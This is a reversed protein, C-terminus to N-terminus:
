DQIHMFSAHIKLLTNQFEIVKLLCSSQMVPRYNSSATFNGKIDKVTPNIEGTLLDSPFIFHNYCSNVFCVVNELFEDSARKLFSSHFGDHGIGNNLKSILKRLTEVSMKPYFKRKQLWERKINEMLIKEDTININNSPLFKETFINLIDRNKIKGDIIGVKKSRQKKMKVDRWFRSMDKNKYKEEISKDKEQSSNSVCVNLAHKFSKRTETMNHFDATDRQWICSLM